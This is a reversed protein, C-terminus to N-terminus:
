KPMHLRLYSASRILLRARMLDPLFPHMRLRNYTILHHQLLELIQLLGTFRLSTAEGSCQRYEDACSHNAPLAVIKRPSSQRRPPYRRRLPTAPVLG